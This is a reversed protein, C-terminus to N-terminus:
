GYGQMMLFRYKPRMPKEVTRRFDLSEIALSRREKPGEDSRRGPTSPPPSAMSRSRIRSLQNGIELEVRGPDSRARLKKAVDDTLPGSAFCANPFCPSYPLALVPQKDDYVLRVGPALLVNPRMQM